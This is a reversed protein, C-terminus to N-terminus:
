DFLTDAAIDSDSRNLQPNPSTPKNPYLSESTYDIQNQDWDDRKDSYLWSLQKLPRWLELFDIPTANDPVELHVPSQHALDREM